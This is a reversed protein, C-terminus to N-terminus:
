EDIDNITVLSAWKFGRVRIMHAITIQRSTDDAILNIDDGVRPVPTGTGFVLHYLSDWSSSAQWQQVYASPEFDAQFLWCRGENDQWNGKQRPFKLMGYLCLCM